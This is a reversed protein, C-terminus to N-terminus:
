VQFSVDELEKIVETFTVWFDGKRYSTFKQSSDKYVITYTEDPDFVFGDDLLQEIIYAKLEQTTM